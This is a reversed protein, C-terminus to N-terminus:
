LFGTALRFMLWVIVGAFALGTVAPWIGFSKSDDIREQDM